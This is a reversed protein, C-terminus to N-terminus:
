EGAPRASRVATTIPEPMPPMVVTVSWIRASSALPGPLTLGNKIGMIRGSLAALMTAMSCPRLPGLMATVEAQAVLAFAMPSVAWM